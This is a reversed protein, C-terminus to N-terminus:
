RRLGVVVKSRASLLIEDIKVPVEEGLRPAQPEKDVRLTGRVGLQPVLVPQIYVNEIASFTPKRLALATLGSSLLELTHQDGDTLSTPLASEHSASPSLLALKGRLVWLAWFQQAAQDLRHRAKSAANFGDIHALVTPLAARPAFSSASSTPLLAGKLQYHAFLDSYRRLPSTVKLYGYEGDIGMPWHPGATPTTAGPLFDLNRKLVELVPAQGTAPNRLALVAEIDEPASAPANQTRFPAPLSHEVAFRAAARNAAVMLESVLLQAPSDAHSAIGAIAAQSPLQLSVHPPSAYFVPQASTQFHPSLPTPSVSVSASPFQWFLASSEVRRCLLTRALKHLTRLESLSEVDTELTADETARPPKTTVLRGEDVPQSHVVHGKPPAEYGFAKDVAGYTLRRVDRVVGAEVKTELIEGREEDVRFSISLVRQEQGELAGLSLQNGHTFSDPLMPWVKEPFYETHDRLRALRALLHQPHLLATPDAVHVHVWWTSTGHSTPLGATLSIGDDLESASPDDITYVKARGFDRRVADHPDAPYLESSSLPQMKDARKPQAAPRRLARAVREGMEDWEHLGTVREHAAWNEWPAVVGVEALFARIRAKNVILEGGWGRHGLAAATSDVHKLLSPAIAMHPQAQLLRDAAITDRLFAFITLDSASWSFTPDAAPLTRRPLSHVQDLREVEDKPRLDFRGTARLALPDAVFHEPRGLLIRHLALLREPPSSGHPIRLAALASAVTASKPAPPAKSNKGSPPLHLLRYVDGAGQSVLEQTEEEVAIELKRMAQLMEVVEPQSPDWGTEPDAYRLAIPALKQALAPRVLGPMIYTVDDLSIEIHVGAAVLILVRRATSAAPCLYIGSMLSGNRSSELWDGPKPDRAKGKGKGGQSGGTEADDWLGGEVMSLDADADVLSEEALSVRAAASTSFTRKNVNLSPRSQRSDNSSLARSHRQPRTFSRAAAPELVAAAREEDLEVLRGRGVSRNRSLREAEAKVRYPTPKFRQQHLAHNDSRPSSSPSSPAGFQYSGEAATRLVRLLVRRNPDKGSAKGAQAAADQSLAQSTSAISRTTAPAVFHTAARTRGSLM